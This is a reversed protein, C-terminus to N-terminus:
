YLQGVNFLLKKKQAEYSSSSISTLTLLYKPHLGDKNCRKCNACQNVPQNAQQNTQRIKNIRRNLNEIKMYKLYYDKNQIIVQNSQLIRPHNNNLDKNRQIYKKAKKFEDHQRKIENMDLNQHQYSAKLQNLDMILEELSKTRRVM